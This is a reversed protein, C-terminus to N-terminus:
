QMTSVIMAAWIVRQEDAHTHARNTGYVLKARKTAASVQDNQTHRRQSVPSASNTKMQTNGQGKNWRSIMILETAQTKSNFNKPLRSRSRRWQAPLCTLKFRANRMKQPQRTTRTWTRMMQTVRNQFNQSTEKQVHRCCPRGRSQSMTEIPQRLRAAIARSSISTQIGLHFEVM